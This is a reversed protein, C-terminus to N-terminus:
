DGAAARDPCRARGLWVVDSQMGGDVLTDDFLPVPTEGTSESHIELGVPPVGTGSFVGYRIEVVVM